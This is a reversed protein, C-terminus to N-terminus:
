KTASFKFALTSWASANFGNTRSPIVIGSIANRNMKFLGSTPVTM